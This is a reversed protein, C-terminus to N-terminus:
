LIRLLVLKDEGGRGTGDSCRGRTEMKRLLQELLELVCENCKMNPDTRKFRHFRIEDGIVLHMRFGKCDLRGGCAPNIFRLLNQGDSGGGNTRQFCQHLVVVSNNGTRSLRVYEDIGRKFESSDVTQEGIEM